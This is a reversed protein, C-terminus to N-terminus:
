SEMQLTQAEYLADCDEVTGGDAQGLESGAGSVQTVAKERLRQNFGCPASRGTKGAIGWWDVAGLRKWRLMCARQARYSLQTCNEAVRLSRQGHLEGPLYVLTPQWKRRWPIKGVWPSFGLNRAEGASAPPDNLM